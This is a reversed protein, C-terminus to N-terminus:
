WSFLSPTSDAAKFARAEHSMVLSAARQNCPPLDRGRGQEGGGRAHGPRPGRRQAPQRRDVPHPYRAAASASVGPVAHSAAVGGSPTVAAVLPQQRLRRLFEPAAPLELLSDVLSTFGRDTAPAPFFSPLQAELENLAEGWTEPETSSPPRVEHDAFFRVVDVTRPGAGRWVPNLSAELVLGNTALASRDCGIVFALGPVDLYIKVAECVALVTDASCRDLDDVFVVLLRRTGAAGSEAWEQALQRIADRMENRRLPAVLENM